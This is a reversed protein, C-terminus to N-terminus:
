SCSYQPSVHIRGGQFMSKPLSEGLPYPDRCFVAGSPKGTDPHEPAVPIVEIETCLTQKTREFHAQVFVSDSVDGVMFRIQEILAGLADVKGVFRNKFPFKRDRSLLAGHM